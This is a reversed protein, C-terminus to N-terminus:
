RRGRNHASAKVCLWIITAFLVVVFIGTSPLFMDGWQNWFIITFALTYVSCELELLVMMMIMDRYVPVAFKPNVDFPMNWASMPMLHLMLSIILNTVLMITPMLFIVAPSSYGDVNGQFDYHSPVQDPLVGMGIAGLIFCIALVVFSLIELIYHLRTMYAKAKM